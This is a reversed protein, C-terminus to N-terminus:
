CIYGWGERSLGDTRLLDQTSNNNSTSLRWTPQLLRWWTVFSAAFVNMDKVKIAQGDLPLPWGYKKWIAVENPRM